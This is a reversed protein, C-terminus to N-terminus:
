PTDPNTRFPHNTGVKTVPPLKLIEKTADLADESVSKRLKVYLEPPLQVPGLLEVQADNVPPDNM